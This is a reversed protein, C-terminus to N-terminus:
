QGETLDTPLLIGNAMLHDISPFYKCNFINNEYTAILGTWQSNNIDSLVRDLFGKSLVLDVWMKAYTYQGGDKNSKCYWGYGGM